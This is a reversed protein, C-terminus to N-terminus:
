IFPEIVKVPGSAALKKALSVIGGLFVVTCNVSRVAPQGVPQFQVKSLVVIAYTFPVM